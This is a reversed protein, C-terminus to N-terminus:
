RLSRTFVEVALGDYEGDLDIPRRPGETIDVWRGFEFREVQVPQTEGDALGCRSVWVRMTGTDIKLNAAQGVSLTPMAELEQYTILPM